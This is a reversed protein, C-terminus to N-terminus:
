LLWYSGLCPLDCYSPLPPLLASHQPSCQLCGLGLAPSGRGCFLFFAAPVLGPSSHYSDPPPESLSPGKRPWLILSPKRLEWGAWLSCPDPVAVCVVTILGKPNALRNM